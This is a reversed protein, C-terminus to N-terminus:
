EYERVEADEKEYNNIIIAAEDLSKCVYTAMQRHMGFYRSRWDNIIEDVFFIRKHLAFAYGLEISLGFGSPNSSNMHVLICDCKRVASLDRETYIEPNPDSWSRPDLFEHSPLMPMIIDQWGDKMGGALYIIM